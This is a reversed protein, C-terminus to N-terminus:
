VLCVPATTVILHIAGFASVAREYKEPHQGIVDKSSLSEFVLPHSRRSPSLCLRSLRNAAVEITPWIAKQPLM